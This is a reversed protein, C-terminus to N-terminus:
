LTNFWKIFQVVAHYTAQIKTEGYVSNFYPVPEGQKHQGFKIAQITCNNSVIHVGFKGHDPHQTSEIKQVVPMLKNWDEHYINYSTCRFYEPYASNELMYCADEGNRKVLEVGMFLAILKNNEVTEEM